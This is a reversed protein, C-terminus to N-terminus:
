SSRIEGSQVIHLASRVLSIKEDESLIDSQIITALNLRIQEILLRKEVQEDNM